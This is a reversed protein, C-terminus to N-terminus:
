FPYADCWEHQTYWDCMQMFRTLEDNLRPLPIPYRPQLSYHDSHEHYLVLSDPLKLGEPLRWVVVERADFNRIIEQMMPGDPRLSCGNPRDFIDGKIPHVLGDGSSSPPVADFQGLM